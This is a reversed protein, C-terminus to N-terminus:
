FVEKSVVIIARREQEIPVKQGTPYDRLSDMLNEFSYRFNKGHRTGPDNTIFEKSEYDYGTIVVMHREPGEGAFNDNDLKQGNAPALVVSGGALAKIVDETASDYFVEIADHNSYTKLFDATDAASADFATGIYEEELEFMEELEGEAKKKSFDEKEGELWATAMLISAEECADQYLKKDWQGSPAQVTFPVEHIVKLPLGEMSMEGTLNNKSLSNKFWFASLATSILTM